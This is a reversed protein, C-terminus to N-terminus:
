TGDSLYDNLIRALELPQDGQISHGAGEVMVVRDGPRRRRFEAEDADDVVPSLAGRVLLVPVEIGQLVDWLRSFDVSGVHLGSSGAPRGLQHRWTWTGDERQVANHLVGRRLSSLSRTPNFQVTRELIEDFSAFSEPGDLFAAIDSSKERTVGPTIDVLALKRVAEPHAGALAISTAGGLSMGVLLRADPALRSVVRAVDDAMGPPNLVEADGPWDSHGHGPLDVAVLPRDLALAVTDWTHANQGGGHLLVVQPPATGWVLASVSRGAEVEVSERRVTPSGKWPLGVESANDEFMSFEDYTARGTASV